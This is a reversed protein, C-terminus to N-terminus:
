RTSLSSNGAALVSGAMVELVRRVMTMMARAARATATGGGGRPRHHALDRLPVGRPPDHRGAAVRRRELGEDRADHQDRHEAGAPGVRLQTLGAIEAFFETIDRALLEPEEAPAFHGGRPMSRGAGSTTSGSPGSARRSGESVLENAFVAMAPRSAHRLRGPRDATGHWRKDYYDRM